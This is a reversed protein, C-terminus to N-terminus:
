KKSPNHFKALWGKIKEFLKGFTKDSVNERNDNQDGILLAIPKLEDFENCIVKLMSAFPLFLIMGAVGWVSAGIILSLIAAMANVKLSSGVIISRLFNTEILPLSWFLGIVAFTELLSAPFLFAFCVPFVSVFCGRVVTSSM